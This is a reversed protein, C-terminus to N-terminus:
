RPGGTIRADEFGATRPEFDQLAAFETLLQWWFCAVGWTTLHQQAFAKGRAAIAAVEAPHDNAWRVREVVDRLARDVPVYHVWPRLLPYWWEFFPSDALFVASGTHFLSALRSAAANGDLNLLYKYSCTREWPVRAVKPASSRMEDVMRKDWAYELKHVKRSGCWEVLGADILRPHRRSLVNIRKRNYFRGGWARFAETPGTCSGARFFLKPTRQAFPPCNTPPSETHPQPYAHHKDDWAHAAPAPVDNHADDVYMAMVPEMNQQPVKPHDWMNILFEVDPLAVLGGVTKLMDVLLDRRYDNNSKIRLRGGKISVHQSAPKGERRAAAGFMAHDFAFDLMTATVNADHWPALSTQLLPVHASCNYRWGSPPQRGGGGGGGRVPCACPEDAKYAWVRRPRVRRRQAYPPKAGLSTLASGDPRSQDILRVFHGTLRSRLAFFGKSPVRLRDFTCAADTGDCGAKSAVLRGMDDVSLFRRSKVFRLRVPGGAAACRSEDPQGAPPPAGGDGADAAVAEKELQQAAELPLMQIQTGLGKGAAKRPMGDGHGRVFDPARFNFHGRTSRSYLHGVAATGDYRLWTEASELSPADAMGTWDRLGDFQDKRWFPMACGATLPEPTSEQGGPAATSAAM